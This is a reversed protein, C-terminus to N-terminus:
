TNSLQCLGQCLNGSIILCFPAFDLPYEWIQTKSEPCVVLQFGRVNQNSIELCFSLRQHLQIGLSLNQVLLFYLSFHKIKM